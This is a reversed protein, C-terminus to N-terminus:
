LEVLSWWWKYQLGFEGGEGMHCLVIELKNAVVCVEGYITRPFFPSYRNFNM